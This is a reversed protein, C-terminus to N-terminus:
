FHPGNSTSIEFGMGVGCLFYEGWGWGTGPPSKNEVGMGLGVPHDTTM